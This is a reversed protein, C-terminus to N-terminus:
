QDPAPTIISPDIDIRADLGGMSEIIFTFEAYDPPTKVPNGTLPTFLIADDCPIFYQGAHEGSFIPYAGPQWFVPLGRSTQADSIAQTVAASAEPTTIFGIM